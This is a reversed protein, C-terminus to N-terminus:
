GGESHLIEKVVKLWAQVKAEYGQASPDYYTKCRMREPLFEQPAVAQPYDHAYKYGTGYGLNTQMEKVPANRLYFPIDGTDRNRVDALAQDLAMYARNSKQSTAVMIAAEALVIRAEPMGIMEVAQWAAVAISLAQPNAMGVDEASCIVIRRAIFAPDEGAELMRALYFVTADPDSGRMSKIFASITDYHEEGSADYRLPKKQVCEQIVELTLDITGDEEALTTMCALELANLATRADGNSVDALFDLADERLTIKERGLGRESDELCQLIIARINETTLPYLQFVTSRSLLAKNVEFYPNETTAGVLILQGNEVHPLLADQQSKNFRHIEDVFLVMRGTPNMLYNGSEEVIGKIEKIGSTVANIQRFTAETTNAIIRALSTKGTGPPGFLIISSLQDAQIMRRLMKGPGLIHEQGIFDTLTRPSMRYALPEQKM